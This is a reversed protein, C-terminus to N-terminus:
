EEKKKERKKEERCKEMTHTVHTIKKRKVNM